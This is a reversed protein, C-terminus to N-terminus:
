RNQNMIEWFAAEFISFIFTFITFIRPVNPFDCNKCMSFRAHIGECNGSGLIGGEYYIKEPLPHNLFFYLNTPSFTFFAPFFITM